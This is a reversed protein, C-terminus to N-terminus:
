LDCVKHLLPSRSLDNPNTGLTDQPVDMQLSDFLTIWFPDFTGQENRFNMPRAEFLHHGTDDVYTEYILESCYYDDNDPLYRYDYACGTLRLAHNVYDAAHYNPDLRMVTLLPRSGDAETLEAMYQHLQRRSVGHKMTADILWLSDTTEDRQLIGVHIYGRGTAGGVAEDVQGSGAEVFLLDGTEITPSSCGLLM